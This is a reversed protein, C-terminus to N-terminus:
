KFQFLATHLTADGVDLALKKCTGAYSKPTQWNYQYYGNGLNQLGSSGATDPPLPDLAGGTCSTTTVTVTVTTLNTVPASNADTLRWKLPVTQGAKTLNVVPPNDVPATFGTFGYVVQYSATATATNGANDTATCTVTHPGVTSTNVAACSQTAVGSGTDTANPNATAVGNLLVPNPTVTPSLTPPTTDGTHLLVSVSDGDYNATALDPAGDGNLDGIAVSDPASGAPYTVAAAFTGDGNGPLVSVASSGNGGVVLDPRGDGDLDGVALATPFNQVPYNVPLAFTGDGNGLLV